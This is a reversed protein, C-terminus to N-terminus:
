TKIRERVVYYGEKWASLLVRVSPPLDKSLAFCEPTDKSTSNCVSKKFSTCRKADACEKTLPARKLCGRPDRLGEKMLPTCDGQLAREVSDSSVEDIFRAWETDKLELFSGWSGGEHTPMVRAVKPNSWHPDTLKTFILGDRRYIM